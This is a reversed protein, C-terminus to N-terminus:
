NTDTPLFHRNTFAEDAVDNRVPTARGGNSDDDYAVNSVRHTREYSHVHGALVLDGQRRRAV